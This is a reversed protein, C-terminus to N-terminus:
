YMFRFLGFLLRYHVLLCKKDGSRLLSRHVSAESQCRTTSQQKPSVGPSRNLQYLVAILAVNQSGEWILGVWRGKPLMNQNEVGGSDPNKSFFAQFTKKKCIHKRESAERFVKLGRGLIKVWGKFPTHYAQVILVM